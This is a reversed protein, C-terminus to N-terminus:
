FALYPVASLSVSDCTNLLLVTFIQFSLLLNTVRSTELSSPSQPVQLLFSKNKLMEGKYRKFEM